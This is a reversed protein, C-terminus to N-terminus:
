GPCFDPQCKIAYKLQSNKEVNAKMVKIVSVLLESLRDYEFTENEYQEGLEKCLEIGKEWM